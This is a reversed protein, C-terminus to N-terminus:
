IDSYNYFDSATTFMALFNLEILFQDLNFSSFSSYKVDELCTKNHFCKFMCFTAVILARDQAVERAQNGASQGDRQGGQQGGGPAWWESM